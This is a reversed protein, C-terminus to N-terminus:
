DLDGSCSFSRDQASVAEERAERAEARQLSPRLNSRRTQILLYDTLYTPPHEGNLIGFTTVLALPLLGRSRSM